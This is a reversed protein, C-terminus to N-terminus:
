VNHGRSPQFFFRGPQARQEDPPAANYLNQRLSAVGARPMLSFLIQISLNDGFSKANCFPPLNTVFEDPVFKCLWLSVKPSLCPHREDIGPLMSLSTVPTFSRLWRM